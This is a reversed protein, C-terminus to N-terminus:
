DFKVEPPLAALAEVLSKQEQDLFELLAPSSRLATMRLGQQYEQAAKAVRLLAANQSYLGYTFKLCGECLSNHEHESM